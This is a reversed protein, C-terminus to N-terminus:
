RTSRIARLAAGGRAEDMLERARALAKETITGSMMRALERAREDDTALERVRVVVRGGAGPAKEVVLHRDAFCAIQALHTVVLVQRRTGLAKLRLGVQVAAEGGIGADVEDFVLTPLRESEAGATRIALMVRSLEGGSAVRALPAPAEGPNASFRMEAEEAGDVGIEARPVLRAEFVAGELRLGSLEATVSRGLRVAADARLSTLEAAARELSERAHALEGQAAELTGDLDAGQGVQHELREREAIAAELSGGYKRRVQELVALRAEVQELRAPDADVSEVYRRLEAGADALEADLAELRDAMGLLRTDLEAATRISGSAASLGEEGRLIEVAGGVLETLRTANRGMAREASLEEDEGLRLGAARLEELQWRLYEEERQGRARMRELGALRAAASAWVAHAAAVAERAPLAGAFTDLLLTQAEPDMLLRHDHQGHIGVLTRGVDRLQGPTAPRGNLRAAGRRGVERALVVSDGPEHGMAELARVAAPVTPLEFLAEARARDAGQRVQDASARAGLSLGLADVILSKGSGTEGTLLNLGAGFRVCATDVLALDRVHLELLM